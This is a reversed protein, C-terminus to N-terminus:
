VTKIAGGIFCHRYDQAGSHIIKNGERKIYDTKPFTLSVADLSTIVNIAGSEDTQISEEKEREKVLDRLRDIEKKMEEEHEKVEKIMEETRTKTALAEKMERLSLSKKGERRNKMKELLWVLNRARESLEEWERKEEEKEEEEGERKEEAHKNGEEELEMLVEKMEEEEGIEMGRKVLESLLEILRTKEKVRVEREGEGEGAGGEKRDTKRRGRLIIIATKVAEAEKIEEVFRGDKKCIESLTKMGENKVM